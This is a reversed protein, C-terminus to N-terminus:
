LPSLLVAVDIRHCMIQLWTLVAIVIIGFQHCVVRRGRIAFRMIPMPKHKLSWKKHWAIIDHM